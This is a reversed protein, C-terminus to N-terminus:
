ELMQKLKKRLAEGKLDRAVIIGDKNILFNTPYYSVGYIIAAENQDGKLDTVNPWTLKDQKIASLFDERNKEAAVGLIEFGKDKFADYIEKLKPHAARCPGCWSGWFELLVTKGKFDALSIINGQADPQTFDAFQDGVKIDRNLQLYRAIKLGYGSGKMEPSLLQFYEETVTKGWTSAYIALVSASVPSGPYQRIFELSAKKEDGAKQIMQDLIGQQDQTASGTIIGQRFKGNAATMRVETADLWFIRYNSLDKNRLLVHVTPAPLQGKFQILGSTVAASDFPKDAEGSGPALYFWTGEPIGSVKVTLAYPHQAIAPLSCLIALLILPIRM